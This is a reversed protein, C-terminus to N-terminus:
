RKCDTLTRLRYISPRQEAIVEVEPQRSLWAGLSTPQIECMGRLLDRIERLLEVVEDAAHSTRIPIASM